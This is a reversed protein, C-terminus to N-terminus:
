EQEFYIKDYDFTRFKEPKDRQALVWDTSFDLNKDTNVIRKTTPIVPTEIL